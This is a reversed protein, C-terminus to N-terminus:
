AGKNTSSISKGSKSICVQCTEKETPINGFIASRLYTQKKVNQRLLEMHWYKKCSLCQKPQYASTGISRYMEIILESSVKSYDVWDSGLYYELDKIRAQTIAREKGSAKKSSYM